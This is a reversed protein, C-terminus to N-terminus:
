VAADVVVDAAPDDAALPADPAEDPAGADDPLAPGEVVVVVVRDPLPSKFPVFSVVADDEVIWFVVGSPM